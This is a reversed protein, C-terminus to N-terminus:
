SARLLICSFQQAPHHHSSRIPLRATSTWAPSMVDGDDVVIDAPFPVDVEANRRQRRDKRKALTNLEPLLQRALGDFDVFAVHAVVGEEGIVDAVESGSATTWKASCREAGYEIISRSCAAKVCTLLTTPVSFRSNARRSNLGSQWRTFSPVIPSYPVGLMSM